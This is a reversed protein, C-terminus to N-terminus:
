GVQVGYALAPQYPPMVLQDLAKDDLLGLFEIEYGDWRTYSLARDRTSLSPPPNGAPTSDKYNTSVKAPIQM